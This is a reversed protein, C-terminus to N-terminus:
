AINIHCSKRPELDVRSHVRDREERSAYLNVVELNMLEERTYGSM